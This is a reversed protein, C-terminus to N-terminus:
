ELPAVLNFYWELLPEHFFLSLVAGLALFPGFPIYDDRKIVNLSILGMGVVSGVSAGIMITLLTAKWGLFAGIMALLKIDGGGMGEKGFLYPSVWALVWLLGGGVLMGMISNVLGVPLITSACLLGLLMGPVTIVNPIIQHTFDTGTVVLLASFLVAYAASVWGAGFHWFIVGYGVANAAEILPYRFSIPAGCARCKGRLALFSLIPINDYWAIPRACAPCRSSPWVISERRPLRYICVNLFSGILAGFLGTIVYGPISVM